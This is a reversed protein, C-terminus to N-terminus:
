AEKVIQKLHIVVTVGRLSTYTGAAPPALHVRLQAGGALNSPVPTDTSIQPTTTPAIPDATLQIHDWSVWGAGVNFHLGAVISNGAAGFGQVAFCWEEVIVDHAAPLQVHAWVVDSDDPISGVGAGGDQNRETFSLTFRYYKAALDAAPIASSWNIIDQFNENIETADLTTNNVFTNTVSAPM